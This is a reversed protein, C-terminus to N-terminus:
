DMTGENVCHHSTTFSQQHVVFTLLLHVNSGWRVGVRCWWWLLSTPVFPPPTVVASSSDAKTKNCMPHSPCNGSIDEQLKREIVDGGGDRQQVRRRDGGSRM